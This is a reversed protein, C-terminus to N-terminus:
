PKRPGMDGRPPQPRQHGLEGGVRGGYPRGHDAHEDRVYTLTWSGLEVRTGTRLLGEHLVVAGHVRVDHGTALPRVVFEDDNRRVVEAHQAHLGDLVVDCSPHSGIVIRDALHFVPQTAGPGPHPDPAMVLRPYGGRDPDHTTTPRRLRRLFTPALPLPTGPPVLPTREGSARRLRLLRLGAALSEVKIYPSGTLQRHWFSARVGLTVLPRDTAISLRLGLGALEAALARAPAAGTGGLLSPDSVVLALDRGSGRLTGDMRRDDSVSVSFAVDAEIRTTM